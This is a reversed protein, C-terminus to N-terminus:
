KNIFEDYEEKTLQINKVCYQKDKLGDCYYCDKCHECRSCLECRECEYCDICNSCNTCDECEYCNSCSICDTCDYCNDCNDCCYCSYCKICEDCKNCNKCDKCKYCRSNSFYNVCRYCKIREERHNLVGTMDINLDDCYKCDMVETEADFEQNDDKKKLLGSKGLKLLDKKNKERNAERNKFKNIKDITMLEDPKM